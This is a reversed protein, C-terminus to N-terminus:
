SMERQVKYICLYIFTSFCCRTADVPPLLSLGLWFAASNWASITLNIVSLIHIYTYGGVQWGFWGHNKWLVFLSLFLSASRCPSQRLHPKVALGSGCFGSNLDWFGTGTVLAFLFCKGVKPRRARYLMPQHKNTGTWLQAM